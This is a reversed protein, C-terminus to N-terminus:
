HYEEASVLDEETVLALVAIEGPQRGYFADVPAIM